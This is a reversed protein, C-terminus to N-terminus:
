SCEEAKAWVLPRFPPRCAVAGLPRAGGVELAGLMPAGRGRTMCGARRDSRALLQVAVRVV